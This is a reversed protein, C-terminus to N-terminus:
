PVCPFLAGFKYELVILIRLTYFMQFFEWLFTHDSIIIPWLFQLWFYIFFFNTWWLQYFSLSVNRQSCFFFISTFCDNKCWVRKWILSVFISSTSLFHMFHFSELRSLWFSHTAFLLFLCRCRYFFLVSFRRVKKARRNIKSLLWLITLHIDDLNSCDCREIYCHRLSKKKRNEKKMEMM